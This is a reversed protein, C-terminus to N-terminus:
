ATAEHALWRLTQRAIHDVFFRGIIVDVLAGPVLPWDPCFWHWVRVLVLGDSEPMFTWAVRMGRTIGRVHTFTIRLENPFLRQEATWAVPILDRRAHMEVLRRQGDDRLVTVRRYHPLLRPWEEVRAALRYLRRPEARLRLTAATHM